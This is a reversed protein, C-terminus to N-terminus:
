PAKREFSLHTAHDTSQRDTITYGLAHLDIGAFLAEGQGLLVPACALHMTDIAGAQLYHRITSVGGGIKVDKDGAAQRALALAEDIGGTVFHFTTGGQM